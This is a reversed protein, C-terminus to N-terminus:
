VQEETNISVYNLEIISRDKMEVEAISSRATGDQFIELEYGDRQIDRDWVAFFDNLSIDSLRKRDFTEIHIAGSTDHTHVEAMCSGTVGINAPIEEPEGDVSIKLLPHIHVEVNQHGNPLCAVGSDNFYSIVREQGQRGWVFLGGLIVLIIIGIVVDKRM